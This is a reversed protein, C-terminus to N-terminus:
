TGKEYIVIFMEDEAVDDPIRWVVTQQSVEQIAKRVVSVCNEGRRSNRLFRFISALKRYHVGVLTRAYMAAMPGIEPDKHRLIRLQPYRAFFENINTLIVQNHPEVQAEVVEHNGGYIAAHNWYGPSTNDEEDNGANRTVFVDGLRIGEDDHM